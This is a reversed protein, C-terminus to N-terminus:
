HKSDSPISASVSQKVCRLTPDLCNEPDRLWLAFSTQVEKVCLARLHQPINKLFIELNAFFLTVSATPLTRLSHIRELLLAITQFIQEFPNFDNSWRTKPSDTHLMKWALKTERLPANLDLWALPIAAFSLIYGLNEEPQSKVRTQIDKYLHDTLVLTIGGPGMERKIVDKFVGLFDRAIDQDTESSLHCGAQVVQRLMRYGRELQQSGGVPIPSVPGSFDMLKRTAMEALDVWITRAMPLNLAGHNDLTAACGGLLERQVHRGNKSELCSQMLTRALARVQAADDMDQTTILLTLLHGLPSDPSGSGRNSQSPTPAVEFHSQATKKLRQDSFHTPGLKHVTTRLLFSFRIIFQTQSGLSDKRQMWIDHFFGTFDAIAGKLEKTAQIEKSGAEAIATILARWMQCVPAKEFTEADLNWQANKLVRKVLQLIVGTQQRIWKTDLAPLEEASVLLPTQHARNENWFKNEFGGFLGMLIKCAYDADSNPKSSLQGLITEVYETWLFTWDVSSAAPRFSYYLLNCYSGLTYKRRARHDKGRGDRSVQSLLPRRLLNVIGPTTDKTPMVTYVLRNWAISTQFKTDLDPSNFCHQFVDVWLKMHRWHDLKSRQSRLFLVVAACIKPVDREQLHDPEANAASKTGQSLMALLRKGFYDGYSPEDESEKNFLNVLAKSADLNGGLLIGINTAADIARCRIEPISSLMGHCLDELWESIRLVMLDPIQEVLRQYIVLRLGVIGNNRIRREIGQLLDLLRQAREVTFVRAPFKQETLLFLFQSVAAKPTSHDELTIISKRLVASYFDDDFCGELSPLRMLAGLLKCAHVLMNTGPASISNNPAFMDRLIIQCLLDLKTKLASIDPINKYARLTGLLTIYADQKYDRQESALQHLVAELMDTFSNFHHASLPKEPSITSGPVKSAPSSLSARPKLISKRPKLERSPPLAQVSSAYEVPKPARAAKNYDTWPSFNVKKAQKASSSSPQEVSSQPTQQPTEVSAKPPIFRLARETEFSDDLFDLAADIDADLNRPPTPPRPQLTDLLRSSVM